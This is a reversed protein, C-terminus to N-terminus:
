FLYWDIVEKDDFRLLSIIFELGGVFLCVM